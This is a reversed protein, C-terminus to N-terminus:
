RTKGFNSVEGEKGEIMRRITTYSLLFVPKIRQDRTGNTYVRGAM